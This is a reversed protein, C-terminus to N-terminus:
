FICTTMLIKVFQQSSKPLLQRFCRKFTQPFFEVLLEEINRPSYIRENSLKVFDVM